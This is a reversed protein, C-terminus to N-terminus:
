DRSFLLRLDEFDYFYLPSLLESLNRLEVIVIDIIVSMETEM